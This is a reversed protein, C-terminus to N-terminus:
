RPALKEIITKCVQPYGCNFNLRASIIYLEEFIIYVAAAIWILCFVLIFQIIGGAVLSHGGDCQSLNM